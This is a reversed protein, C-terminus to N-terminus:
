FAFSVSGFVTRPTGINIRLDGGSASFYDEDFLNKVALQFRVTGDSGVGPAALTYWVSLDVLSYSDLTFSNADDGFRDDVFFYGGGVGLGELKGKQFEYSAWLNFTNEAVNRPQNGALASVGGIESDTYAYGAVINM